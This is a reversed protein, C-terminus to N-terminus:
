SGMKVMCCATSRWGTTLCGEGYALLCSRSGPMGRGSVKVVGERLECSLEMGKSAFGPCEGM